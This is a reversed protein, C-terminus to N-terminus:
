AKNLLNQSEPDEASPPLQMDPVDGKTARIKKQQRTIAKNRKEPDHM